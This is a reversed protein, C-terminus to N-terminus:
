KFKYILLILINKSNRKASEIYLINKFLVSIIMGIMYCKVHLCMSLFLVLMITFHIKDHYPTQLQLGEKGHKKTPSQDLMM